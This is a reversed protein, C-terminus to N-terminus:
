EKLRASCSGCYKMDPVTSGCKPCQVRPLPYLARGCHGCFKFDETNTDGCSLCVIVAKVIKSSPTMVKFMYPVLFLGMGLGLGASVANGVGVATSNM